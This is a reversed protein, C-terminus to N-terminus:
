RPMNESFSYFGSREEDSRQEVRHILWRGDRLRWARMEERYTLALYFDEDDDSQLREWQCLHATYCCAEDEDFGQERMAAMEYEDHRVFSIPAVVADRWEVPLQARWDPERALQKSRGPGTRPLHPVM